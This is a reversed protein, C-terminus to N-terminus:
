KVVSWSGAECLVQVNCFVELLKQGGLVQAGTGPVQDKRGNRTIMRRYYASDWEHSFAPEGRLDENM